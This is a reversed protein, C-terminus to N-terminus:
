AGDSGDFEMRTQPDEPPLELDATRYAHLSSRTAYRIVDDDDSYVTSAGEVKAIAVIQRDFKIKTKTADPNAADIRLGGRELADKHALAAELAAMQDFPAIRFVSQTNLVQLYKQMAQGAHVMVESLVPTPVIIKEKENALTEILYEIRDAAREVPSDTAPDLPPRATPDLFLLLVSTDFVVM